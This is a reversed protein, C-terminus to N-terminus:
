ISRGGSRPRAALGFWRANGKRCWGRPSYHQLLGVHPIVMEVDASAAHCVSHATSHAEALGSIRIGFGSVHRPRDPSSSIGVATDPLTSTDFPRVLQKVFLNSPEAIVAAAAKAGLVSRALDRIPTESRLFYYAWAGKCKRQHAEATSASSDETEFPVPRNHKRAFLPPLLDLHERLYNRWSWENDTSLMATWLDFAIDRPVRNQLIDDIQNAVAEDISCSRTLRDSIPFAEDPAEPDLVAIAYDELLIDAQDTHRHFQYACVTDHFIRFAVPSSHAEWNGLVPLGQLLRPNGVFLVTQGVAHFPTPLAQRLEIGGRGHHILHADEIPDCAKELVAAVDAVIRHPDLGSQSTGSDLDVALVRHHNRIALGGNILIHPVWVPGGIVSISARPALKDLVQQWRSFPQTRKVECLALCFHQDDADFEFPEELILIAETLAAPDALQHFNEPVDYKSNGQLFDYLPDDAPAPPSTAPAMGQDYFAVHRHLAESM